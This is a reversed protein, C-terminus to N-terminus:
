YLGQMDAGDPGERAEPSMMSMGGHKMKVADMAEDISGHPGSEEGDHHMVSHTGDMHHTIETKPEEATDGSMPDTPTDLKKEGKDKGMDHASSAFKERQVNGGSHKKKGSFM